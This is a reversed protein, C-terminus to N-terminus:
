FRAEELRGQCYWVWAQLYMVDGLLYAHNVSYSKAHEAHANAEDFRGEDCFLLALDSHAWVLEHHWNFPSAIELVLESHHIAKDTEGKSQCIGGLTHYSECLQYQHDKESLLNIARSATEEAVDLQGDECLSRALNLLCFALGATDDLSEYIQLAEGAEQIGEKYLGMIRSSHSLVSLMKAVRGDNGRERWLVLARTLLRKREVTNGILEFLWSLQYLCEPKSRHDDPLQEIRPGLVTPRNKHWRLHNM